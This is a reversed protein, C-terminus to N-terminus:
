VNLLVVDAPGVNVLGVNVLCVDVLGVNVLGLNVLGPDQGALVMRRNLLVSKCDQVVFTSSRKVLESRKHEPPLDPPGFHLPFTASVEDNKAAVPLDV